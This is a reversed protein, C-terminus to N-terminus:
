VDVRPDELRVDAVQALLEVRVARRQDLRDAADAVRQPQRPPSPTASRARRMMPSTESAATPMSRAPAIVYASCRENKYSRTSRWASSASGTTSRASRSYPTPPEGIRSPM